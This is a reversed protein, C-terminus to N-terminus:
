YPRSKFGLKYGAFNTAIHIPPTIILITLIVEWSPLTVLSTLLLAVLVFGLQDLGPAADGRKLGLRRKIFSGLLDGLLAGLALLFGLLLYHSFDEAILGQILGVMTGTAIGAVLGG